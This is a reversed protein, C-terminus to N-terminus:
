AGPTRGYMVRPVKNSYLQIVKGWPHDMNFMLANWSHNM